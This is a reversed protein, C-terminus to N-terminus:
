SSNLELEGITVVEAAKSSVSKRRMKEQTKPAMGAVGFEVDDSQVSMAQSFGSAGAADPSTAFASPLSPTSASTPREYIVGFDTEVCFPCCSPESEIHTITPEGRKIQVFCETCIPQQCCRSTNINSPYHQIDAVLSQFTRCVLFCIPCELAGIYAKRERKDREQAEEDKRADSKRHIMKKTVSGVGKNLEKEEKMRETVSNKVDEEVDQEHVEQLAKAVEEETWDEEFDDLGRYFPALKAEMILGTVITKSYDHAQPLALAHPNQPSLHGAYPLLPPTSPPPPSPTRAPPTLGSHFQPATGSRVTTGTAIPQTASTSTATPNSSSTGNNGSPTAHGSGEVSNANSPTNGM